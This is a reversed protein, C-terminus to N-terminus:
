LVPRLVLQDVRTLATKREGLVNSAQYVGELTYLGASAVDTTDRWFFFPAGELASYFDRLRWELDLTTGLYDIPSWQVALTDLRPGLRARSRYGADTEMWEVRPEVRDVHGADYQMSPTFSKDFIVTGVTYVGDATDQSGVLLRMFRYQAFNTTAAMKDGFIYFTGASASFDVGDVYIRAEDNDAIEYVVGGVSLFYRHGDGDSKFQGPRWNLSTTPGLYGPGRVGAGVTSTVLTADLAISVSPAGWSDTANLQLSATRFNTGFVAAVDGKFTNTSGADFVVNWSTSDAASHCQRSPRLERWINEKGYSYTTGVTYADAAVGGANFGGMHLGATVYYDTAGLPRGTLSTPNTFGSSAFESIGLYYVQHTGAAGAIIGGSLSVISNGALVVEAPTITGILTWTESADQKYYGTVSASVGPVADHQYFFLFDTPLTMDVTVTGGSGSFQTASMSMAFGQMNGAGDSIFFRFQEASTSGGSVQRARYRITYYGGANSAAIVATPAVYTSYNGVTTVFQLPGQNTVTAGAGVAALTWPTIIQDPIDVPIMGSNFSFVTGGPSDHTVSEWGGLTYMHIAYDSSGVAGSSRSLGLVVIRGAWSGASIGVHGANLVTSQANWVKRGSALPTTFTRGGDLSVSCDLDIHSGATSNTCFAWVTGDDRTVIAVRGTNCTIDPDVTSTSLGGGPAIERVEPPSAVSIALIKGTTTVCTRVGRLTQTDDVTTWNYGEDQSVRVETATAGTASSLVMVLIDDVYELCVIDLSSVQGCAAGTTWTAGSDESSFRTLASGAVRVVVLRGSPLVVFDSQNGTNNTAADIDVTTAVNATTIYCFKFSSATGPCHDIVFGLNGNALTRPTSPKGLGTGYAVPYDIRVLYPTDVYGRYSSTSDSTKKWIAGAGLGQGSGTTLAYGSPNGGTQLKVDLTRAATPRGSTRLRLTGANTSTATPPAVTLGDESSASLVKSAAHLFGPRVFLTSV